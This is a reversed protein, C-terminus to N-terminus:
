ANVNWFYPMSCPRHALHAGFAVSAGERIRAGVGERGRGGSPAARRGRWCRASLATRSRPRRSSRARARICTAASILRPVRVTSLVHERRHLLRKVLRARASVQRNGPEIWSFRIVRARMRAEVVDDLCALDRLDVVHDLLQGVAVVRRDALMPRSQRRASAFSQSQAPAISAASSEIKSSRGATQILGGRLLEGAGDILELALHGHQEDRM